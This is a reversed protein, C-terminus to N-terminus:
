DLSKVEIQKVDSEPLAKRPLKITLVGKKFSASIGEQDADEPLSLVRQFSGYSREVRYFDQSKQEKEQKKEGRITLTEGAIEVKVDKESVGPVEMTIAYEHDTAGVDVNPKLLGSSVLPTSLDFGTASFGFNRFANEFLRDVERHLRAIPHSVYGESHSHRDDKRGVPVVSGTEEDEKKFWNWPAFKKINM